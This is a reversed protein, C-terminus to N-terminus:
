DKRRVEGAGSVHKEVSPNGHYTVEGAGTVSVKLSDSVSVDASGAGTTSLEATKVQLGKASLDSAGTMDALLHDVAGDLKVDAAGTTQVAFSDGTLGHATLESAGTLRCGARSSSSVVVKLGHTPLIRERVRLQLRNDRVVSEVLGMLNEDTTVSLAPPGDRWEIEFMGQGQLESFDAIQRQETTIHGNGRVGLFRCGALGIAAALLVFIATRKM